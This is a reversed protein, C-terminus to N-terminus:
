AAAIEEYLLVLTGDADNPIAKFEPEVLTGNDTAFTLTAGATNRGVIVVWM